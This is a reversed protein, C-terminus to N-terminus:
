CILTKYVDPIEIHDNGANQDKLSYWAELFLRERYNKTKDVITTNSFDIRHDFQEAHKAIKSYQDFHSVAREHEKLRTKLARDTQGYYAFDCDCCCIKYIVGSTQEPLLKDKPKPFQHSLTSTPKYCVKINERRLVRSIKETVGKVYPLVVFSLVACDAPNARSNNVDTTHLNGNTNNTLLRKRMIDYSQIFKFPYGNDRLVKFVHKRERRKGRNSSPIKEARDLLTNLVSLKHQKPHHSDYHLYKDTHTPKRYIDVEVKGNSRITVTDLFPLRRNEELEITFQLYPSISNLHNHFENVETKKL